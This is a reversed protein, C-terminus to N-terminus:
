GSVSPPSHLPTLEQLKSARLRIFDGRVQVDIEMVNPNSTSKTVSAGAGFKKGLASAADKLKPCYADLGSITTIQKKRGRENVEVYVKPLAAPKPAKAAKKTAEGDVAGGASETVSLGVVADALADAAAGSGGPAASASEGRALSDVIGDGSAGSQAVGEASTAVAKEKPLYSPANARLWPKCAEFSSGYECLDPPMGCVGCYVVSLPYSM